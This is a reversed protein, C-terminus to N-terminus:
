KISCIFFLLNIISIFCLNYLDELNLNNEIGELNLIKESKESKIIGLLM